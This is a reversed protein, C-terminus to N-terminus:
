KTITCHHIASVEVSALGNPWISSVPCFLFYRVFIARVAPLLVGIAQAFWVTHGDGLAVIFDILFHVFRFQLRKSNM